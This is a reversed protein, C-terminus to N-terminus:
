GCVWVCNTGVTAYRDGQYRGYFPRGLAAWLEVQFCNTTPVAAAVAVARLLLLRRLAVVPVEPALSAAQQIAVRTAAMAVTVPALM